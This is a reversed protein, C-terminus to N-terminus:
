RFTLKKNLGSSVSPKGSKIHCHPREHHFEAIAMESLRTRDGDGGGSEPM